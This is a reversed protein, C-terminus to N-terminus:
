WRKKRRGTHHGKRETVTRVEMYDFQAEYRSKWTLKWNDRGKVKM